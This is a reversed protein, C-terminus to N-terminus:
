IPLTCPVPRILRRGHAPVLRRKLWASALRSTAKRRRPLSNAGIPISRRVSTRSPSRAGAIEALSQVSVKVPILSNNTLPISATTFDPSSNPDIAFAASIPAHGVGDSHHKVRDRSLRPTARPTPSRSIIPATRQRVTPHPRAQYQRATRSKSRQSAAKRTPVQSASRSATARIPRPRCRPAEQPRTTDINGVTV